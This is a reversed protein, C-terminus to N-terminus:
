DEIILTKLGKCPDDKRCVADESGRWALGGDLDGVIPYCNTTAGYCTFYTQYFLDNKEDVVSKSNYFCLKNGKKILYHASKLHMSKDYAMLMYYAERKLGFTTDRRIEIKDLSIKPLNIIKELKVKFTTTDILFKYDGNELYAIDNENVAVKTDGEIKQCSGFLISTLLLLILVVKKM